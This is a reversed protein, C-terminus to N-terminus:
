QWYPSKMVVTVQKGLISGGTILIQTLVKAMSFPFRLGHLLRSKRILLVCKRQLLRIGPQRHFFDTSLQADALLRELVFVSGM